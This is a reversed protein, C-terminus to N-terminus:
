SNKHVVDSVTWHMKCYVNLPKVKLKSIYQLDKGILHMFKDVIAPNKHIKLITFNLLTNYRM